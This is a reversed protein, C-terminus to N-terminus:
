KNQEINPLLDKHITYGLMKLRIYDGRYFMYGEIKGQRAGRSSDKILFWDDGKLKKYGVLHIGHDDTSSKNYIRYERSDQNIYKEPIDFDPIIAIDETGYFGPESVDGGITVTCGSNIAKKLLGYWEDLPLNYYSSDRWWNDEVDFIGYTYFPYSLTSVVDLYDNPEFKLCDTVFSQPTYNKEEWVFIKPPTGLYKNLILRVHALIDSENWRNHADCYDLYDNIEEFLLSHDHLDNRTFGTFIEFPVAGHERIMRLAGNIESGEGLVSDGRRRVLRLVKALYEYYVTHMESLKVSRGSLRHVESEVFSTASFSWCTGTNYQAVPAFHFSQKFEDPSYPRSLSNVDFRIIERQDREQKKIKKQVDRIASTISEESEIMSDNYAEMQKMLTDHFREKYIVKDNQATLTISVTLMIVLAVSKYMTM